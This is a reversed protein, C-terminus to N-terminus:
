IQAEPDVDLVRNLYRSFDLVVGGGVANGAISTGAGRSTLPEGLEKCAAFTALVDEVQSPFVVAAPVLRYNSADSSYEARRRTTIDVDSVGNQRLRTAVERPDATLEVISVADNQQM